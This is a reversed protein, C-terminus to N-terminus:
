NTIKSIIIQLFERKIGSISGQAQSALVLGKLQLLDKQDKVLDAFDDPELDGNLLQLGWRKLDAKSKNWFDDMSKKLFDANEKYKEDILSIVDEKASNLWSEAKQDNSKFGM